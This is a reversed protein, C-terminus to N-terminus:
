SSGSASAAFLWCVDAESWRVYEPFRSDPVVSPRLPAELDEDAHSHTHVRMHMGRAVVVRRATQVLVCGEKGIHGSSARGPGWAAAGPLFARRDLGGQSSCVGSCGTQM